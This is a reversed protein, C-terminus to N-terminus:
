DGSNIYTLRKSDCSFYEVNTVTKNVINKRREKEWNKKIENMKWYFMM